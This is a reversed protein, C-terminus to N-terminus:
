KRREMNSFRPGAIFGMQRYVYESNNGITVFLKVFPAIGYAQTVIRSIMYKALGKGRFQPLVCIDAIEVYGHTYNEGIGALCVGAIKETKKEIVVFSLNKPTYVNLVRRADEIASDLSAEGHIENNIGGSYGNLIANGIENAEENIDFERCFFDDLLNREIMDAPRCMVQNIDITKYNFMPLISSDVDLVGNIKTCPFQKLLLRWFIIRDNFPSILFPFMIMDDKVIAGGIKQGGSLLFYCQETWKTDKLRRDWDYWMEIDANSYMTQYIAFLNIDARIFDIDLKIYRM